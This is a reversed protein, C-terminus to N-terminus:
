LLMDSEFYNLHAYSIREFERLIKGYTNVIIIKFFNFNRINFIITQNEKSSHVCVLHVITIEEVSGKDKYM